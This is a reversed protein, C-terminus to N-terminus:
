YDIIANTKRTSTCLSYWTDPDLDPAGLAIWEGNVGIPFCVKWFCGAEFLDARAIILNRSKYRVTGDDNKTSADYYWHNNLYRQENTSVYNKLNHANLLYMRNVHQKVMVILQAGTEYIWGPKNSNLNKVTELLFSGSSPLVRNPMDKLDTKIEAGIYDHLGDTIMYDIDRHQYEPDHRVDKPTTGFCNQWVHTFIQEGKAGIKLDHNWQKNTSM